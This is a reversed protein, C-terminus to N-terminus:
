HSLLCRLSTQGEDMFRALRNIQLWPPESKRCRNFFSCSSKEIDMKDLVCSSHRLNYFDLPKGIGAKRGAVRIRKAIAPYSYRIVQLRGTADQKISGESIWLPDGPRRTPHADLWKLL